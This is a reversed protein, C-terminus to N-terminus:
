TAGNMPNFAVSPTVTRTPQNNMQNELRQIHAEVRELRTAVEDFESELETRRLTLMGRLEPPSVGGDVVCKIETLSFGLGKLALVQLLDALQSEHYRRYGTADDVEAPVLVGLDHYHRLM